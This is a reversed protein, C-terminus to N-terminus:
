AGPTVTPRIDSGRPIGMFGRAIWGIAFAVATASAFWALFWGAATLYGEGLERWRRAEAARDLDNGIEVPLQFHRRSADTEFLLDGMQRHKLGAFCLSAVSRRGKPTVIETMTSGDTPGCEKATMPRWDRLNETVFYPVNGIYARGDWSKYIWWTQDGFILLFAVIHSVWLARRAGEFINTVAVRQRQIPPARLSDSVM